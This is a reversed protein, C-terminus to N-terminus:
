CVREQDKTDRVMESPITELSKTNRDYHLVNDSLVDKPDVLQHNAEYVMRGLDVPDMGASEPVILFEHLSSPLAYYNEGLKEAIQEKVEPYYLVSAGYIGDDSSLVYMHDKENNPIVEDSLLLNESEEFGFLTEQMSRMVAPAEKVSGALAKTFLETKNYQESDMLTRTVTTKWYGDSGDNVKIDAVYAFGNGVLMYPVNSLFQRNRSVEVLRVTLSDKVNDFSFNEMITEPKQNLSQLYDQITRSILGKLTSEGEMYQRFPEDMYITPSPENDERKFTIGHLVQDNIKTVTTEELTINKMIDAPMMEEIETRALEMFEKINGM